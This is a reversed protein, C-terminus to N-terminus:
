NKWKTKGGYNPYILSIAQTVDLNLRLSNVRDLVARPTADGKTEYYVLVCTEFSPDSEPLPHCLFGYFRQPIHKKEWKFVFCKKYEPESWGHFYKDFIACDLWHDFRSNVLQAYKEGLSNFHELANLEASELDHLFGISRRRFTHGRALTFVYRPSPM